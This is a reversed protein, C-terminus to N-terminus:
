WDTPTALKAQGASALWREAEIAAVATAWPPLPGAIAPTTSMVPWSCARLRRGTPLVLSCTATKQTAAGTGRGSSGFAPGRDGWLGSRSDFRARQWGRSSHGM